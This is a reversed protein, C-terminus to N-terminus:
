RKKRKREKRRIARQARDGLQVENLQRVDDLSLVKGCQVLEEETVIVYTWGNATAWAVAADRKARNNRNEARSAPKVEILLKEQPLTLDVIYNRIRTKGYPIRTVEYLMTDGIVLGEDELHRIVSLELLSRFRVGKYTGGYAM